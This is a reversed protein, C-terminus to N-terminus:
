RHHVATIPSALSPKMLRMNPLDGRYHPQLARRCAYIQITSSKLLIPPTHRGDIEAYGIIDLQLEVFCETILVLTRDDRIQHPPSHTLAFELDPPFSEETLETDRTATPGGEGAFFYALRSGDFPRSLRGRHSRSESIAAQPDRVLVLYRSPM